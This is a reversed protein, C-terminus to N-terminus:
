FNNHDLKESWLPCSGVVAGGDDLIGRVDCSLLCQLHDSAMTSAHLHSECLLLALLKGIGALSLALRELPGLSTVGVLLLNWHSHPQPNPVASITLSAADDSAPPPRRSCKSHQEVVTLFPLPFDLPKLRFIAPWQQICFSNRRGDVEANAAPHVASYSPNCVDVIVPRLANPDHKVVAVLSLLVSRPEDAFIATVRNPRAVCFTIPLVACGAPCGLSGARRSIAILILAPHVMRSIAILALAPPGALALSTSGAAFAALAIM